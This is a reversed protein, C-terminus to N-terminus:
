RLFYGATDHGHNSGMVVLRLDSMKVVVFQAVLYLFSVYLDPDLAFTEAATKSAFAYYYDKYHLIGIEPNSPV